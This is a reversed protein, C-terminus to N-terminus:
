RRAFVTMKFTRTKVIGDVDRGGPWIVEVDVTGSVADVGDAGEVEVARESSACCHRECNVKFPGLLGEEYGQEVQRDTSSATGDFKECVFGCSAWPICFAMWNQPRFAINSEM